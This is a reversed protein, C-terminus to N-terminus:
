QRSLEALAPGRRLKRMAPEEVSLLEKVGSGLSAEVERIAKVLEYLENPELSGVHDSGFMWRSLSVHREIASAGKAAAAISPVLGREHGSYGVPIGPFTNRLTDMVKLNIHMAETPYASVCHFLILQDADLVKVAREVDSLSSMGTSLIIPRDQSQVYALLRLDTVCPSPIKHCCVDFQEM